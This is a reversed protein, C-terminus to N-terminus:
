RPGPFHALALIQHLDAAAEIAFGASAVTLAIAAVALLGTPSTLIQRLRSAPPATLLAAVRRPVEGAAAALALPAHPRADKTALAAKGVAKAVTSRSGVEHAALEDAWRETTYRVLKRLPHLLPNAAAFVDVVAVFLHHSRDLHAREHALLARRETPDLGALIGTSVVIRGPRGPLAHAIPHDDDIVILEDDPGALDRVKTLVAIRRTAAVAGAVCTALLLAAATADVPLNTIDANDLASTSLRGLDAVISLGTLGAVTFLTLTVATGIALVGASVATLWSAAAPHLHRCALRVLPVALLPFLLPLYSGTDM